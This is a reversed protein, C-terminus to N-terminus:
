FLYSAGAGFIVRNQKGPVFGGQFSTHDYRIEPQIKLVPIPTYNLTLAVSSLDQGTGAPNAFGL